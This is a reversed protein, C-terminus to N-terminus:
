AIAEVSAIVAWYIVKGVDVADTRIQWTLPGTALEHATSGRLAATLNDVGDVTADFNIPQTGQGYAEVAYVVEARLRDERGGGGFALGREESSVAPLQVWSCPLEGSNIAAPPGQTHQKVVGSITLGELGDVFTRYTIASM